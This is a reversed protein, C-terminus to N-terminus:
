DPLGLLVAQCLEDQEQQTGRARPDTALYLIETGEMEPVLDQPRIKELHERIKDAADLAQLVFPAPLRQDVPYAFQYPQVATALKTVPSHLGRVMKPVAACLLEAGLSSASGSARLDERVEMSFLQLLGGGDLLDDLKISEGVVQARLAHELELGVADYGALSWMVEDETFDVPLFVIRALLYACLAEQRDTLVAVCGYVSEESVDPNEFRTRWISMEHGAVPVRWALRSFGQADPLPVLETVVAKELAVLTTPLSWQYFGTDDGPSFMLMSSLPIDWLQEFIREALSHIEATQAPATSFSAWPFQGAEQLVQQARRAALVGLAHKASVPRGDNWEPRAIRQAFLQGITVHELSPWGTKLGSRNVAASKLVEHVLADPSIPDETFSEYLRQASLIPQTTM